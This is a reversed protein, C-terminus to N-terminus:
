FGEQIQYLEEDSGVKDCMITLTSEKGASHVQKKLMDTLKLTKKGKSKANLSNKRLDPDM